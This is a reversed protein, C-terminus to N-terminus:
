CFVVIFFYVVRLDGDMYKPQLLSCVNHQYCLHISYM